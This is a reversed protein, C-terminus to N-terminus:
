CPVRWPLGLRHGLTMWTVLRSERPPWARRGVRVRARRPRHRLHAVRDGRPLPSRPASPQHGRPADPGGPTVREGRGNAGGDGAVPNQGWVRNIKERRRSKKPPRQKRSQPALRRPESRRGSLNTSYNSGVGKGRGPTSASAPQKPRSGAQQRNWPATSQSTEATRATPTTLLASPCSSASPTTCTPGCASPSPIEPM